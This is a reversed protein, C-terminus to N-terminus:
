DMRGDITVFDSYDVELSEVARDMVENFFKETSICGQVQQTAVKTGKYLLEMGMVCSGVDGFLSYAEIAVKNAQLIITNTYDKM